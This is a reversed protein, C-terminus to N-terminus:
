GQTKRPQSNWWEVLRLVDGDLVYVDPLAHSPKTGDHVLLIDRVNEPEFHELEFANCTQVHRGALYRHLNARTRLLESNM